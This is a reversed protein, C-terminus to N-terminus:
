GEPPVPPEVQLGHRLLMPVNAMAFVLTLPIAGWLKFGAWFAPDDTPNPATSRWVAENLIAMGVFFFAWNRTLKKWGAANVGPYATGLLQQLLPRGTAFGYFLLVAFITYVITPKMKIFTGDHFYLTLGGFLLVLVGSILLMPSVHRTRWWSLAIAATIAVMFAITAALLRELAAGGAFSNVVFFVALPGYDHAMRFLPSPPPRTM